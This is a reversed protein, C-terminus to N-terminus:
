RLSRELRELTAALSNVARWSLYHGPNIVPSALERLHENARLASLPELNAPQMKASQLRQRYTFLSHFVCVFSHRSKSAEQKADKPNNHCLALPVLRDQDLESQQDIARSMFMDTPRQTPQVALLYRTKNIGGLPDVFARSQENASPCNPRRM